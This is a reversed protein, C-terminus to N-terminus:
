NLKCHAYVLVVFSDPLRQFIMFAPHLETLLCRGLLVGHFQQFEYRFDVFQEFFFLMSQAYDRWSIFGALGNGRYNAGRRVQVM